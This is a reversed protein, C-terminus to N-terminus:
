NLVEPNVLYTPNDGKLVEVVGQAAHTAMRIMSEQTHAAMHPTLVVNDMGFLPNYLSPPEKEYVDLAAGRIKKQKLAKILAEEDVIGGRAVNILYTTEKMIKFEKESILGRTEETLPCNVSLFDSAKLFTEWDGILEVKEPTEESKVYPDYGLVRMDFAQITKHAVKSGIRGLGIIGLVKGELETGIYKNRVEFRGKRIAKDAKLIQKAVIVMFGIIHEAVSETNSEPANVVVIGLKTATQVPVNDVGVGHRAIVKLHKGARVVEKPLEARRVIIAACDGVRKLLTKKSTDPSVITKMGEKKLLDIGEKAIPEMILVTQCLNM